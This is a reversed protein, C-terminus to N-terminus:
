NRGVWSARGAQPVQILSLAVLNKRVWRRLARNLAPDHFHLVEGLCALDQQVRWYIYMRREKMQRLQPAPQNVHRLFLSVIILAGLMATM